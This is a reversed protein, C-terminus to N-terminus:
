HRGLKSPLMGNAWEDHVEIAMLVPDCYLKVATLVILGLAQSVVLTPGRREALTSNSHHPKAIKVHKLIRLRDDVHNEPRQGFGRGVRGWLPLALVASTLSSSGMAKM